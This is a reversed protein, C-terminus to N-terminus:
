AASSPSVSPDALPPAPAAAEPLPKPAELDAVRKTLDAIQKKQAADIAQMGTLQSQLATVQETLAAKDAEFLGAQAQVIVKDAELAAVQETLATRAAEIDQLRQGIKEMTLPPVDDETLLAFPFLRPDDPGTCDSVIELIGEVRMDETIEEVPTWMDYRFLIEGVRFGRQQGRCRIANMM